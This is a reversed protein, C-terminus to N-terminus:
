HPSASIFFVVLYVPLPFSKGTGCPLYLASNSFVRRKGKARLRRNRVSSDRGGCKAM